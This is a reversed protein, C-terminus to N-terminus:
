KMYRFSKKNAFSCYFKTQKASLSQRKIYWRGTFLKKSNSKHVDLLNQLSITIYFMIVYYILRTDIEKCRYIKFRTLKRLM